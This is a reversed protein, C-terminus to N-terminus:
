LRSQQRLEIADEDLVLSFFQKLVQDASYGDLLLFDVEAVIQNVSKQNLNQALHMILSKPVVGAIEELDTIALTKDGILSATQLM